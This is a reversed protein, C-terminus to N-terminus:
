REGFETAPLTELFMWLAGLETDSMAQYVGWPMFKGDIDGGDPRKGERMAMVFDAEAWEGLGTAHPTLNSPIGVAEVPAGPIPGGSFTEGHCGICGQALMQGFELNRTPEPDDPRDAEHDIKEAPFVVMAGMVHLIRGLVRLENEGPDNDSAELQQIHAYLAILDRDPLYYFEHAPMFFLARGDPTVGHRLAREFDVPSYDDGLNTLNVGVMRAFAEDIVERGQGVDGHCEACGRAVFLRAGEELTAADSIAEFGAPTVDYSRGERSKSILVMAIVAGVILVVLVIAVIAIWKLVKKM